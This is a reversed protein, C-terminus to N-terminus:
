GSCGDFSGDETSWALIGDPKLCPRLFTRKVVTREFRGVGLDFRLIAIEIPLRMDKVKPFVHVSLERLCNDTKEQQPTPSELNSLKSCAATLAALSLSGIFQRRNM